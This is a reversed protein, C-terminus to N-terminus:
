VPPPSLDHSGLGGRQCASRTQPMAPDGLKPYVSHGLIANPPRGPRVGERLELSRPRIGHRTAVREMRKAFDVRPRGVSHHLIGERAFLYTEALCAFTDEPRSLGFDYTCAYRPINVIGGEVIKVHRKRIQAVHAETFASPQACDIVVAGEQLHEPDIRASPDNTLLVVIDATRAASVSDAAM